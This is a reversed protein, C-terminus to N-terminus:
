SRNRNDPDDEVISCLQAQLSQATLLLRDLISRLDDPRPAGPKAQDVAEIALSLLNNVNALVIENRTKPEDAM